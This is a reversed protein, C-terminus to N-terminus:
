SLWFPRLDVTSWGFLVVAVSKTMSVSLAKQAHEAHMEDHQARMEDHEMGVNDNLWFSALSLRGFPRLPVWALGAKGDGEIALGAWGTYYLAVLKEGLHHNRHLIKAFM